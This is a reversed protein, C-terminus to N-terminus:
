YNDVIWIEEETLDYLEYVIKDIEADLYGTDYKTNIKKFNLIQNVRGILESNQVKSLSPVPFPMIYKTNFRFYGGRLVNGTAQLYFWILKSNLIALIQYEYSEFEKKLIIGYAGNKLCYNGYEITVNMGFTIDPSVFKYQNSIFLNKPYNYLFWKGDSNMKGNERNRLEKEFSQLYKYGFPFERKIFHEEMPSAKGDELHYPFIVFTDSKIAGYRKIDEGKIVRKALGIELKVKDLTINNSGILYGDEIHGVITYIKDASTQIGSFISDLLQNLRLPNNNLKSIIESTKRDTLTWPDGKPLNELKIKRFLLDQTLNEPKIEIYEFDSNVQNKIFLLCTYTTAEQFVLEHGFHIIRSILEREHLLIRLGKGFDAILFKHPLIFNLIGKSNILNISKEVFPIYLDYNGTQASKFYQRYISIFDKLEQIRMYPPNGIIADFGLFDGDNNLVEPFEFRWEFANEFIKNNKIESIKLELKEINSNLIELRKHWDKKQHDSYDFLQISTLQLLENKYKNLAKVDQNTRTVETAFDNKIKSILNELTRKEEKSGANRYNMVAERYSDVTWKSSKLALKINADLSYRSILSNGCKINIDINPLTELTSSHSDLKYYAHKLLEIWLRLRCIKVSNPNIDVGFLCNEIITQKEHFIAEQVRQSEKNKPHYEFPEGDPDSVILEDNTVEFGYDRLVRGKRDTLIKLESKISIIENLASVLFHGSGVAPDCVRLSNIICNAEQKDEIKNHVDTLTECNWGKTENFKHVVASTITEHCMYQTIFGPTFYSGDKYGNIKEFILGLVSANILTKNEEQICKVGESSFNYADLFEFLYALTAKEGTIRKGLSDKLVTSKLILLRNEDDLNSIRITKRELDTSEFLSSNLYPINKFRDKLREDRENEPIALVHFFLKNLSDYGPIVSQNLFTFNKDGQNYKVLQGELLKLFLIRNIWTIVLELSINFLQEDQTEGFDTPRPVQSILDEAKLSSIANELLSGFNRTNEGARGILKKSGQKTEELGIIHLLERYFDKDLSNSDNKFQLKLLHEPSFIKFLPILRNDDEQNSNIFINEFDRLDLHTFKIELDLTNLFAAAVSNYFFSTDKGSSRGEEFDIFKQVLSKNNAFHKEFEHADFIFWEFLNTAILNKLELNKNTIRERLYYLLLEHIAKANLNDVTPMECVNGPSKVEVIVGVSSASEKSNHIVLDYRGRTNIYHNPSYYTKKLFESIENKHFEEGESDKVQRFLYKFNEKFTEIQSRTPPLKLYAKNIADKIKITHLNM